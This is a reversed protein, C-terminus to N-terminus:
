GEERPEPNRARYADWKAMAVALAEADGSRKADARAKLLCVVDNDPDDPVFFKSPDVKEAGPRRTHRTRCTTGCFRSARRQYEYSRGCEDCKRIM